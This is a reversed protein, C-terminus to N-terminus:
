QDQAIDWSRDCDESPRHFRAESIFISFSSFGTNEKFFLDMDENINHSLKKGKTQNIALGKRNQHVEM